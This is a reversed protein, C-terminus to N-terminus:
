SAASVRKRRYGAVGLSGFLGAMLLLSGPEPVPTRPTNDGPQDGDYGTVDTAGAKTVNSKNFVLIHASIEVGKKNATLVDSASSWTGSNNKVTFTYSEIADSSGDAKPDVSFNFKGFGDFGGQNSSTDITFPTPADFGGGSTQTYAVSGSLAYSSAHINLGVKSMLYTYSSDSLSSFVFQAHTSDTLTVTVTGFPGVYTNSLNTQGLSITISDASANRVSCTLAAAVGLAVKWILNRTMRNKEASQDM